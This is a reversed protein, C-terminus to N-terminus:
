GGCKRINGGERASRSERMGGSSERKRAREERREREACPARPTTGCPSRARAAKRRGGPRAGARERRQVTRGRAGCQQQAERAAQRPRPLSPPLSPPLSLSGSRWRPVGRWAASLAAQPERRRLVAPLFVVPRAPRHSPRAARRLAM